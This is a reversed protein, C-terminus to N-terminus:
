NEILVAGEGSAIGKNADQGVPLQGRALRQVNLYPAISVHQEGVVHGTRNMLNPMLILSGELDERSSKRAWRVLGTEMPM